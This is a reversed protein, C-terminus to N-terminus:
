PVEGPLLLGALADCYSARLKAQHQDVLDRAANAKESNSFNLVWHGDVLLHALNAHTTAISSSRLVKLLGRVPPRVHIHLWRKHAPDITPNAGMLPAVSLVKGLNVRSGQDALLVVPNARVAAEAGGAADPRGEMAFFVQREVGAAFAVSCAVRSTLEIETNAKIELDRLLAEDMYPLGATPSVEGTTSWVVQHLQSLTIFHLAAQWLLCASHGSTSIHRQMSTAATPQRGQQLLRAAQHAQSWATVSANTSQLAPSRLGAVGKSWEVQILQPLADCWIGGMQDMLLNRAATWATSLVSRQHPSLRLSWGESRGPDSCSEAFSPQTVPSQPMPAHPLLQRLLWATTWLGSVPMERLSLLGCLANLVEVYNHAVFAASGPSKPPSPELISDSGSYTRQVALRPATSGGEVTSTLHAPLKQSPLTTCREFSGHAPPTATLSELLEKQKRRKAPLLGAVDLLSNDVARCLLLALLVRVAATAAIADGGRLISFFAERYHSPHMQLVRWVYRPLGFESAGGSGDELAHTLAADQGKEIQPTSASQGSSHRDFTRSQQARLVAGSSAWSPVINQDAQPVAARGGALLATLVPRLFVRESVVMVLREVVMLAVTPGVVGVDGSPLRTAAAAGARPSAGPSPSAAPSGESACGISSRATKAAAAAAWAPLPSQHALLPWLLVPGVFKSWLARTLIQGVLAVGNALIDNFYSLLDEIEALAAEVPHEATTRGEQISTLEADLKQCQDVVMDTLNQFFAAHPESCVFSQVKDDCISYVNLTLARVASRVMGDSHQIFKISETYLPFKAPVGAETVDFFFQVTTATFKLSIAKLLNIYYGIIEDDEFDLNTTILDNIYNNSFIYFIATESRINAILISLTQLVQLPVEGRQNAPQQLIRNFHSLLHKEAFFDFFRSDHQDGWIVLEALSRLTEVVLDRNSENVITNETLVDHLRRLEELTFRDTHDPQDSSNFANSINAFFGTM